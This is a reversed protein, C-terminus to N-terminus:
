KDNKKLEAQRKSIEVVVNEYIDAFLSPNSSYFDFSKQFRNKDIGSKSLVNTIYASKMDRNYGGANMMTAEAVHLDAMITVMSDAPIINEPIEVTASTCGTLLFFIFVWSISKM